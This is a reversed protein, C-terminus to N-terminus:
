AGVVQSIARVTREIQDAPTSAGATVGILEARDFWSADLEGADEIHHTNQCRVACIEALRRTNGSSRGGIVIMVDARAALEAAAILQDATAIGAPMRLRVTCHEGDAETIVGGM